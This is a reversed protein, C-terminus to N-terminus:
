GSQSAGAGSKARPARAVRSRIFWLFLSSPLISLLKMFRVFRWPFTVEFGGRQLGAVLQDAADEVKMLDPMRFDNTRTMPTDVFGPNVVTVEVNHRALDPQLCEALNILAAKTPAYAASRPLGRYGAVSAVIAIRGSKRAMMRQAVPVLTAVTGNYNVTMSRQIPEVALDEVDMVSWTAACFLALDIPGLDEEIRSVTDAAASTDMIDLPYAKIADHEAELATLAEASRASVAVRTGLKALRIATERGIGSSAGTVWAVRWQETM